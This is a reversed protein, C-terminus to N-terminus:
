CYYRIGIVDSTLLLTAGLGLATKAPFALSLKLLPFNSAGIGLGTKILSSCFGCHDCHQGKM